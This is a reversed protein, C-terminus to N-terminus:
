TGDLPHQPPVVTAFVQLTHAWVQQGLGQCRYHRLLRDNGDVVDGNWRLRLAGGAAAPTNSRAPNRSYKPSTLHFLQREGAEAASIGFVLLTWRAVLRILAFLPSYWALPGCAFLNAVIDTRVWGPHAHIFTIAPQSQSLHEFALTQMATTHNIVNGITYNRELGLDDVAVARESGGALVSLM